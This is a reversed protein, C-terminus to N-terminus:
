VINQYLSIVFRAGGQPGNEAEITGGQRTLISKAMALGIGVSDGGANKGRYFREFIHPIDGPDIGPGTDSIVIRTHLPNGEAEFRITGGVPTHEMCNKIINSLAEALWEFDGDVCLGPQIRCLFSQEKLEMPIVLHETAKQVLRVMDVPDSRFVIANADLRSLKLLSSVLWEIRKLQSRISRTFEMRQECPLTEESLLQTMMMMSTLPTKLQHSIDSLSDALYLKDKKLLEAQERLTVTVKYIENKLISLEGERNDRIDLSYRGATIRSLYTTMKKLQRYKWLMCGLVIVLTLASLAACCVAAKLSVRFFAAATVALGSITLLFLTWRNERCFFM